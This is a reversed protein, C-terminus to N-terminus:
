KGIQNNKLSGKIINNPKIINGKISFLIKLEWRRWISKPDSKNVIIDINNM